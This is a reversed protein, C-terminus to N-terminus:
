QSRERAEEELSQRLVRVDPIDTLWELYGDGFEHVLEREVTCCTELAEALQDTRKLFEVLQVNCVAALFIRECQKAIRVRLKLCGEAASHKQNKHYLEKLNELLDVAMFPLVKEIHTRDQPTFYGKVGLFFGKLFKLTFHRGESPKGGRNFNDRANNFFKYLVHLQNPRGALQILRVSAKELSNRLSEQITRRALDTLIHVTKLCADKGLFACLSVVWLTVSETSIHETADASHSTLLDLLSLFTELGTSLQKGELSFSVACMELSILENAFCMQNCILHFSKRHAQENSLLTRQLNRWAEIVCRPVEKSLSFHGISVANTCLYKYLCVCHSALQPLHCFEDTCTALSLFASQMVSYTRMSVRLSQGPQGLLNCLNLHGLTATLLNSICEARRAFSLNAYSACEISQCLSHAINDYLTVIRVAGERTTMAVVSNDENALDSELQFELLATWVALQTTTVQDDPDQVQEQFMMVDEATPRYNLLLCVKSAERLYKRRGITGKETEWAKAISIHVFASLYSNVGFVQNSEVLADKYSALALQTLSKRVFSDGQNLNFGMRVWAMWRDLDDTGEGTSSKSINSWSAMEKVSVPLQFRGKYKAQSVVLEYRLRAM